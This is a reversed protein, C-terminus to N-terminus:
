EAPEPILVRAADKSKRITLATRVSDVNPAATLDSIIFEQFTQLDTVVCRLIFDVEGSLMWCERVTEWERCQDEFAILDAEAQSSLGVMAFATVDFGLTKEDILARYGRIVGDKELSRVRRLCPPASIGIRHALEVNTIRGDEQLEKLIKWDIADLRLKM